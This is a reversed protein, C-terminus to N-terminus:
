ASTWEIRLVSDITISVPVVRGKHRDLGITYPLFVSLWTFYLNIPRKTFYCASVLSEMARAFAFCALKCRLIHHPKLDERSKSCISTIDRLTSLLLDAEPVGAGGDARLATLM